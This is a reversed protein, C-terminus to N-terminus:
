KGDEYVFVKKGMKKAKTATDMTGNCRVGKITFAVLHECHEAIQSNRVFFNSVHYPMNYENAPCICYPNHPRHKPPFEVYDLGMDLAVKRALFDAGDPCGGSVVTVNEFGYQKIYLELLKRVKNENKFERSGVIALKM